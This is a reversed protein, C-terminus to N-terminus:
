KDTDEDFSPDSQKILNKIFNKAYEMKKEDLFDAVKLKLIKKVVEPCKYFDYYHIECNIPTWKFEGENHLLITNDKPNYLSVSESKVFICFTFPIDEFGIHLFIANDPIIHMDTIKIM